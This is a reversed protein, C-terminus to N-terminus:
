FIIEFDGGGTYSCAHITRYVRYSGYYYYPDSPLLTNTSYTFGTYLSASFSSMDHIIFGNPDKITQIPGYSYPYAFHLYGSGNLSFKVSQSLGIFPIVKKISYTSGIISALKSGTLGTSPEFSSYFPSIFAINKSVSYSFGFPYGSATYGNNSVAFTYTLNVGPTASYTPAVASVTVYTGPLGQIVQPGGTRTLHSYTTGILTWDSIWESSNRPYMTLSANVQISPTTGVEAYTTGTVPNTVSLSLVPDIYPYLYQRLVESMPWNTYTGAIPNNFSGAAFSAGMPIGSATAPVYSDNIFEIPIGNVSVTSGYIYTPFGLTGVSALSVTSEDWKLYGNPYTGFYKLVKGNSAGAATEAATPFVVGNIAVRGISSFVSIAGGNLSPNHINFDVSSTSALSEFYPANYYLTSDTGALISVKTSNQSVSDQKTNYFFIDANNTSLLNSNMIDLNGFQRKGILIPKKIDRDDPNSSDIGIYTTGIVGPSTLKIPSSAWTTFFADRVDRPSIMKKTNDPLDLLVKFVDEKKSSEIIQGVNISFTAAM